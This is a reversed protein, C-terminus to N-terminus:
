LINHATILQTEGLSTVKERLVACEVEFSYYDKQKALVALKSLSTSIEDIEDHPLFMALHNKRKDWIEELDGCLGSAEPSHTEASIEAEELVSLLQRATDTTLRYETYALGLLVVLIGLATWVRTM